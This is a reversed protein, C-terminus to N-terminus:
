PSVGHGRWAAPLTTEHSPQRERTSKPRRERTDALHLHGPGSAAVNGSWAFRMSVLVLVIGIIIWM